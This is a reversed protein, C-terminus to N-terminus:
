EKQLSEMRCYRGCILGLAVFRRRGKLNGKKDEDLRM